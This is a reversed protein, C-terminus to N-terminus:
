FDPWDKSIEVNVIKATCSYEGSATVEYTTRIQLGDSVQVVEFTQGIEAFQPRVYARTEGLNPRPRSRKM